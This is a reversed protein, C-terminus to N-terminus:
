KQSKIFDVLTKRRTRLSRARKIVSTMVGPQYGQVIDLDPDVISDLLYKDDATM